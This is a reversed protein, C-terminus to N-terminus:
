RKPPYPSPIPNSQNDCSGGCNAAPVDPDGSQSMSSPTLVGVRYNGAAREFSYFGNVDTTTTAIASGANCPNAASACLYVTVGSIPQEGSDWVGNQDM